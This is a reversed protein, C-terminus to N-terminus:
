RRLRRQSIMRMDRVQQSRTYSKGAFNKSILNNPCKSWAHDHNKLRCMNAGGKERDQSEKEKKKGKSDKLKSKLIMETAQKMHANARDIWCLIQKVEKLTTAKDGKEMIFDRMLEPKLNSTIVKKVLDEESMAKTGKKLYILGANIVTVRDCWEATSLNTPQPTDVLYKIQDKYVDEGMIEEILEIVESKFNEFSKIRVSEILREWKKSSEGKLM